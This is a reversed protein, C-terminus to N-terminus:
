IQVTLRLTHKKTVFYLLLGIVAFVGFFMFMAQYGHYEVIFGGIVSGILTPVGTGLSLYLSM